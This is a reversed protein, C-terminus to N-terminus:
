LFSNAPALSGATGASGTTSDSKTKKFSSCPLGLRMGGGVSGGFSRADDVRGGDCGVGVEVVCDLVCLLSFSSDGAM